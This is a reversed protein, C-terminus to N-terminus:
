LSAHPFVAQDWSRRRGVDRVVGSQFSHILCAEVAAQYAPSDRRWWRRTSVTGLRRTRTGVPMYQALRIRCVSRRTWRRVIGFEVCRQLCASGRFADCRRQRLQRRVHQRIGPHRLIQVTVAMVVAASIRIRWTLPWCRHPCDAPDHQAPLQECVHIPDTERAYATRPKDATRPEDPM